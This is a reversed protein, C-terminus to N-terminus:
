EWSSLVHVLVLIYTHVIYSWPEIRPTSSLTARHRLLKHSLEQSLPASRFRDFREDSDSDSGAAHDTHCCTTRTIVKVTQIYHYLTEIICCLAIRAPQLLGSFSTQGELGMGLRKRM